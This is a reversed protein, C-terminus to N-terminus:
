WDWKYEISKLIPRSSKEELHSIWEIAMDLEKSVRAITKLAEEETFCLVNEVCNESECDGWEGLNKGLVTPRGLFDNPTRNEDVFSRPISISLIINSEGMRKLTFTAFISNQHDQQVIAPSDPVVDHLVEETPMMGLMSKIVRLFANM